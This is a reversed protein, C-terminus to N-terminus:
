QMTKTGTEKVYGLFILGSLRELRYHETCSIVLAIQVQSCNLNCEQVKM